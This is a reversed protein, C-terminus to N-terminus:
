NNIFRETKKQYEVKNIYQYIGNMGSYEFKEFEKFKSKNYTHMYKLFRNKYVFNIALKIDRNEIPKLYENIRKYWKIIEQDRIRSFRQASQGGTKHQGPVESHLNFITKIEGTSYIDCCIADTLDVVM